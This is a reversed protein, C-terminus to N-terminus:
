NDYLICATEHATQSMMPWAQMYKTYIDCAVLIYRNRDHTTPLGGLVDVEIRQMLCMENFPVLPAKRSKM